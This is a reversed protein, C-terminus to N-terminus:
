RTELPQHFGLARPARPLQAGPGPPRRQLLNRDFKPHVFTHASNAAFGYTSTNGDFLAVPPAFASIANRPSSNDSQIIDTAAGVLGFSYM